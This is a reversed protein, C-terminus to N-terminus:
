RSRPAPHLSLALQHLTGGSEDTLVLIHRGDPSFAASCVAAEFAHEALPQLNPGPVLRYLHLVRDGGGVAVLSARPHFVATNVNAGFSLAPAAPEGTAADRLVATDDRSGTLLWRGDPSFAIASTVGGHANEIRREASGGLLHLTAAEDWPGHAWALSSDAPAFVAFPYSGGAPRREEHMLPGPGAPGWAWIQLLSGPNAFSGVALRDGRSSFAVSWVNSPMRLESRERVMGDGGVELVEGHDCGVLLNESAPVFAVRNARHRTQVRRTGPVEWRGIAVGKTNGAAAWWVGGPHVALVQNSSRCDGVEWRMVERVGCGAVEVEPWRMARPGVELARLSRNWGAAKRWAERVEVARAPERAEAEAMARAGMDFRGVGLAAVGLVELAEAGAESWAVEEAERLRGLGVLAEVREAGPGGLALAEAYRREARAWQRRRLCLRAARLPQGAAAWAAEAADLWGLQEFAHAARAHDGVETWRRAALDWRGAAEWCRAANQLLRRRDSM